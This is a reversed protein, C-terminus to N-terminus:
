INWDIDLSNFSYSVKKIKSTIIVKDLGDLVLIPTKGLSILKNLATLLRQCLQRTKDGSPDEEMSLDALDRSTDDLHSTGDTMKSLIYEFEVSLRSLISNM